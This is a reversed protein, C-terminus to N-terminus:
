INSCSIVNALKETKLKRLREVAPHPNLKQEIRMKEGWELWDKLYKEVTEKNQLYYLITAYVQELNLSTYTNAIEEATKAKFLYDYLITEIGIRTGKVRIDDDALFDFYSELLM